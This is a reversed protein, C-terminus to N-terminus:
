PAITGWSKFTGPSGATTCVWGINGSPVPIQNWVKDGVKWTGVTTSSFGGWIERANWSNHQEHLLVTDIIFLPTTANTTNGIMVVDGGANYFGRSVGSVGLCTVNEIKTNGVTGQNFVGYNLTTTTKGNTIRMEPIDNVIHIGPGGANRIDFKDICFIDGGTVRVGELGSSNTVVDSLYARQVDSIAIGCDSSGIAAMSQISLKAVSDIRVNGINGLLEPNTQTGFCYINNLTVSLLVDTVATTGAFEIQPVTGGFCVASGVNAVTECPGTSSPGVQLGRFCNEMYAEVVTYRKVSGKARVTPSQNNFGLINEVFIEEGAGYMDLVGIGNNSTYNNDDNYKKASRGLNITTTTGYMFVSPRGADAIVNTFTGLVVCNSYLGTPTAQLFQAFLDYSTLSVYDYCYIMTPSYGLPSPTSPDGQGKGFAMDTMVPKRLECNVRYRRLSSDGRLSVYGSTGNIFTGRDVFVNIDSGAMVSSPLKVMIAHGSPETTTQAARNGDFTPAGIIRLTIGNTSITFMGTSSNFSGSAVDAGAKRKFTVGSECDITVNRTVNITDIIYIGANVKVTNGVTMARTFNLTVDTSGDGTAGFDGVSVVERAKDQMTRLIAGVGAQIFGILTSGIASLLTTFISSVGAPDSNYNDVTYILNNLADRIEVKYNGQWFIASAPEGRANLIIPNAQPITGAFDTFTQKPTNTGAAFTYIKGGVLPIGAALFYQQKPNPMLFTVAM